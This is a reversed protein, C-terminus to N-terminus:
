KSAFRFRGGPFRLDLLPLGRDRERPIIPPREYDVRLLTAQNREPTWLEVVFLADALRRNSLATQSSEEDLYQCRIQSRITYQPRGAIPPRTSNRSGNSGTREREGNPFRPFCLEIAFDRNTPFRDYEAVSDWRISRKAGYPASVARTTSPRPKANTSTASSLAASAIEASSPWSNM